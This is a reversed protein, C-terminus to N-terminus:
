PPHGPTLSEQVHGHTPSSAVRLYCVPISGAMAEEHQRYALQARGRARGEGLNEFGLIQRRWGLAVDVAFHHFCSRFPFPKGEVHGISNVFPEVVFTVGM